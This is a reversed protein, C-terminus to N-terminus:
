KKISEYDSLTKELGAVAEQVRKRALEHDGTDILDAVSLRKYLIEQVGKDFLKKDREEQGNLPGALSIQAFRAARLYPKVRPTALHGQVLTQIVDKLSTKQLETGGFGSKIYSHGLIYFNMQKVATRLAWRTIEREYSLIELNTGFKEAVFSGLVMRRTAALYAARARVRSVLPNVRGMSDTKPVRLLMDKIHKKNRDEPNLLNNEKLFKQTLEALKELDEKSVDETIFATSLMDAHEIVNQAVQVESGEFTPDYSELIHKQKRIATEIGSDVEAWILEVVPVGIPLNNLIDARHRKPALIEYKYKKHKVFRKNEEDFETKKSHWKSVYINGEEDYKLRPFRRRDLFSPLADIREFRDTLRVIKVARDLGAVMDERRKEAWERGQREISGREKGKTM